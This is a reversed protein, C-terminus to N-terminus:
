GGGRRSGGGEGRGPADPRRRPRESGAPQDTPTASGIVIRSGDALQSFGTTVVRESATLGSPIVAQTDDQQGVTVPREPLVVRQSGDLFEEM